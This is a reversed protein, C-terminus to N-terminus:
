PTDELKKGCMPCYNAGSRKDWGRCHDCGKSREAQERLAALATEASCLQEEEIIEIAAMLAAHDHRFIDNYDDDTFFSERDRALSWLVDIIEQRDM